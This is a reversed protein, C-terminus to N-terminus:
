TQRMVWLSEGRGKIDTANTRKKPDFVGAVRQGEGGGGVFVGAQTLSHGTIYLVKLELGRKPIKNGVRENWDRRDSTARRPLPNNKKKRM